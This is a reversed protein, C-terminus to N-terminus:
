RQTVGVAGHNAQDAGRQVDGVALGGLGAVQFHLLAIPQGGLGGVIRDPVPPDGIAMHDPVLREGGQEAMGQGLGRRLPPQVVDMGIVTRADIGVDMRHDFAAPRAPVAFVPEPAGIAAKRRHEVAAGYQTAAHTLRQPHDARHEVQGDAVGGFSRQGFALFAQAKGGLGTVHAEPIDVQDAIFQDPRCPGLRHEADRGPHCHRQAVEVVADMRIVALCGERGEGSRGVRGPAREVVHLVAGDALFVTDHAPHRCLPTAM